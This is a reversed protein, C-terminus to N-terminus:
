YVYPLIRWRVQRQYAAYSNPFERALSREEWPIAIVLYLSTIAAFALRAATMHAAGFVVLMWGLYLPHRVWRYPGTIQLGGSSSRRRIGALELADIARVSSVILCLGALQVATHAYMRWGTVFFIESGPARWLACVVIFLASAIWVYVSRLLHQPVIHALRAKVRERALLSHHAAFVSFIALDFAIAPWAADVQHPRSWSVLYSYGCFALAGVFLAGGLWVVLFEVNTREHTPANALKFHSSPSM